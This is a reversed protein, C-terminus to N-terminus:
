LERAGTEVGDASYSLFPDFGFGTADADTNLFTDFDFNDLVDPNELASFDLDFPSTQLFDTFTFIPLNCPTHCVDPAGPFAPNSSPPRMNSGPFSQTAMEPPMVNFKMSESSERQFPSPRICKHMRYTRSDQFNEKCFRCLLATKMRKSPFSYSERTQREHADAIHKGLLKKSSFRITARYCGPFSCGYPRNHKSMHSDRHEPTEFGQHFFECSMRPCKYLHNGYFSDLVKPDVKTDDQNGSATTELLKRIRAIVCPIDLSDNSTADESFCCLQKQTSVFADLFQGSASWADHEQLRRELEHASSPINIEKESSRYHSELFKSLVEVLSVATERDISCKLGEQLHLSWFCAAYDLFSYYGHNILVLISEDPQSTEFGPLALYGVCLRAM